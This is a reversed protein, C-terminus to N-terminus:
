FRMKIGINDNRQIVNIKDAIKLTKLLQDLAGFFHVFAMEVLEPPLRRLRELFLEELKMM